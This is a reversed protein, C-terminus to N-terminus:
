RCMLQGEDSFKLPYYLLREKSPSEKAGWSKDHPQLRPSDGRFSFGCCSIKSTYYVLLSAKDERTPETLSM